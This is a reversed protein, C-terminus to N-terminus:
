ECFEGSLLMFFRVVIESDEIVDRGAPYKEIVEWIRKIRRGCEPEGQRFVSEDAKIDEIDGALFYSSEEGPIKRHSNM